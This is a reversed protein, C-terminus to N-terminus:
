GAPGPPSTSSSPSSARAAPVGPVGDVLASKLVPWRVGFSRRAGWSWAWALLGFAALPYLATWKTGVALGFCVGAVLLWPRFLLGRVPGFGATPRGGAGPQAAGDPRPVLRPRQGPAAVACLLFFAVFIDLLALRSLVFQLGDFCLLLGAVCGSCRDLRDAPPRAPVDGPGDALRGRGLRDALRVPGDRLLARGAAILWKGVEPHVIM